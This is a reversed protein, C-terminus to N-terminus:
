AIAGLALRLEQFRSTLADLVLAEVADQAGTADLAVIPGCEEHSRQWDRTAFEAFAAEVRAHFERGSREISPFGADRSRIPM